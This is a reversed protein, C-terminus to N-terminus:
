NAQATAIPVGCSAAGDGSPSGVPQERPIRRADNEGLAWIINQCYASKVPKGDPGTAPKFRAKEMIMYCSMTDLSAVGSSQFASCDRVKGTEDILLTFRVFGSASERMADDPYTAPTFLHAIPKV